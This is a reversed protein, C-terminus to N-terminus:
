ISKRLLLGFFGNQTTKKPEGKLVLNLGKVRSDSIHDLVLDYSLDFCKSVLEFSILCM